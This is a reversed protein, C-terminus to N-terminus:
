GLDKLNFISEIELIRWDDSMNGKVIIWSEDVELSDFHQQGKLSDFEYRSIRCQISDTDDEIKLKLYKTDSKLVSGGRKAIQATDNLNKLEKLIVKGIVVYNGASQVNSINDPAKTLGYDIPNQYLDHWLDWCPYLTDFPTKPNLLLATLTKTFKREGRRAELIIEAKKDAIGDLNKLGGLLKGDKITWDIVSHDPDLPCYDIGDNEYADRLIKLSNEDSKSYILNSVTFELIHNAKMYACWYSILGYAVAHSKNFGYAGFTLMSQWLKHAELEKLGTKLAGEVFDSKYKDTFERGKSKSIAKRIESVNEWSLQGIERCIFMVQEQYVLVGLTEKTIEKYKENDVQYKIEGFASHRDVFDIAGGSGLPGPRALATLVCIDDFESVHMKGCLMEMAEGEFQFIGNMKKNSFISFAKENDLPLEYFDKFDMGILKACHQLISLTRLGLIDIKLLNLREAGRKDLMVTGERANMGAYHSLDDNCVIVGAAHKGAHLAHDQLGEAYRIDPYQKEFVKGFDSSDLTEKITTKQREDGMPYECLNEKLLEMEFHPYSLANGVDTIATRAGAKNINSINCVNEKGFKKFIKKIVKPRDEDPFDIDIDPLDFRNIDIFREFLLGYKIPDIETIGMLYCVLSGASSGRSPGVLMTKKADQIIESVILFYDSYGKQKILDLEYFYRDSYEGVKLNINKIKANKECIKEVTKKGHYAVMEARPIEVNCNEAIEYTNAAAEPCNWIYNFELESLIYQPVTRTNFKYQYGDGRKHSGALIQYHNKDDVECYFNDQIYVKPIDLDFLMKSTSPTLALYDVRDMIEMNEAIVYVDDSLTTVDHISLMPRYYFRTWAIKILNNIEFFGKENKAIFIYIPGFNGRIRREPNQLVELRVGYIPKIGKEKCKEELIIHSYSNNFDAIGIAGKQNEYKLIEDMKGFTQRFSYESRLAINIM